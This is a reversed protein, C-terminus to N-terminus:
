IKGALTSGDKAKRKLEKEIKTIRQQCDKIKEGFALFTKEHERDSKALASVQTCLVDVDRSLRDRDALLTLWKKRSIITFM